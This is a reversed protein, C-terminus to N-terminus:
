VEVDFNQLTRLFWDFPKVVIEYSGDGQMSSTMVRQFGTLGSVNPQADFRVVMLRLCNEGFYIGCDTALAFECGCAKAHGKLWWLHSNVKRQNEKKILLALRLRNSISGPDKPEIILTNATPLVCFPNEEHDTSLVVGFNKHLYEKMTVHIQQTGDLALLVQLEFNGPLIQKELSEITRKLATSDENYCPICVSIVRRPGEKSYTGTEVIAANWSRLLSFYPHEENPKREEFGCVLATKGQLTQM